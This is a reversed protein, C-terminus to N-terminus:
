RSKEIRFTIEDTMMTANVYLPTQDELTFAGEKKRKKKKLLLMQDVGM